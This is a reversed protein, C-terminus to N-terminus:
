ASETDYIKQVEVEVWMQRSGEGAEGKKVGGSGRSESWGGVTGGHKLLNMCHMLPYIIIHAEELKVDSWLFQLYVTQLNNVIVVVQVLYFFFKKDLKRSKELLSM